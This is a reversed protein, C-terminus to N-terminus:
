IQNYNTAKYSDEWDRFCMNGKLYAEKEMNRLHPNKQAYGPGSYGQDDLSGQENQWHHVLEHAISRLIDKDHRGDVYIHIEMSDPDYYGTKGLTDQANSSDSNLHFSPDKEFGFRDRAFLTLNQIMDAIESNAGSSNFIKFKM